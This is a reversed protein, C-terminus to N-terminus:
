KLTVCTMADNDMQPCIQTGVPYVGIPRGGRGKWEFDVHWLHRYIGGPTYAKVKKRPSGLTYTGGPKRVLWRADHVSRAKVNQKHITIWTVARTRGGKRYWHAVFAEYRCQLKDARVCTRDETQVIPRSQAAPASPAAADASLPAVVALLVVVCGSIIM